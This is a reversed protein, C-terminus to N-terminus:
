QSFIIIGREKIKRSHSNMYNRKKKKLFFSYLLSMHEKIMYFVCAKKITLVFNFYIKNCKM